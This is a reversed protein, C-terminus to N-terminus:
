AMEVINNLYKAQRLRSRRSLEGDGHVEAVAKPYAANRDPGDSVVAGGVADGRRHIFFRRFSGSPLGIV